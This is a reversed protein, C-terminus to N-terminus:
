GNRAALVEYNYSLLRRRAESRDGFPRPSFFPDSPFLLWRNAPAVALNERGSLQPVLPNIRAVPNRVTHTAVCAAGARPPRVPAQGQPVHGRHQPRCDPTM